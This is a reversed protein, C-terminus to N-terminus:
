KRLGKYREVDYEGIWQTLVDWENDDVWNSGTIRHGRGIGARGSMGKIGICHDSTSCLGNSFGHQRAANWLRIDLFTRDKDECVKMLHPLLDSCIGTQCMSAHNLNSLVMYKRAPVHYYRACGEGAICYHDLLNSMFDLYKPSYWDDDEIFLIKRYMVLPIAERINRGLTIQGPSWLPRPYVVVSTFNPQPPLLLDEPTPTSRVTCDDVVIWQLPGQYTQRAMYEKCLNFAVPRSGTATILTLGDSYM